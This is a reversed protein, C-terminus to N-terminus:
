SKAVIRVIRDVSERIRAAPQGTNNVIISFAIRRGDDTTVTGTLSDVNGITGTKAHVRGPLDALRTHLSGTLAASVPLADYVEKMEPTNAIYRAIESMMHPTVLNGSSLGSADRLRFAMSDIHLADILFRRELELGTDWSGDGNVERAVTKLLQEAIWNQSNQLIPMLVQALPASVHEFILTANATPSPDPQDVVRPRPDDVTIGRRELAERLAVAAYKGPNRTAFSETRMAAGAPIEGFAYVTDTGAIRDFDLTYRTGAATTRTRNIFTFDSTKPEWTIAAPAGITGPTVRFDISNDNFGIAAVPAAYWWNLDYSEWDPRIYQEEFYTQDAVIRGAIHRIGHARLSDAWAELIATRSTQNRGSILPDGRGRIVLDGRLVGGSVDGTAYLGTHYRYAAGLHHLATTSVILKLNSAPIFLADANREYLAAGSALDRISIGWYARANEGTNTIATIRASLAQNRAATKPRPAVQAASPVPLSLALVVVALVVRSSCSSSHRM